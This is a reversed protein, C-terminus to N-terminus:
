RARKDPTVTSRSASGWREVVIPVTEDPHLSIIEAMQEWEHVPIGNIEVVRDGTKM